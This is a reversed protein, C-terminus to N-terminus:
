EENKIDEMKYTSYTKYEVFRFIEKCEDCVVDTDSEEVFDCYELYVEEGCYPCILETQKKTKIKKSM